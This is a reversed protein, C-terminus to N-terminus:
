GSVENYVIKVIIRHPLTEFPLTNVTARAREKVTRIYREIEPIHEDRGTIKVNVGKLM